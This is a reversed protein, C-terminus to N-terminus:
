RLVQALGGFAGGGMSTVIVPNSAVLILFIIMLIAVALTISNFAIATKKTDTKDDKQKTIYVLSFSSDVILFLAMVIYLISFPNM